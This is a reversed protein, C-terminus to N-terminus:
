RMSNYLLGKILAEDDDDDDDHAGDDIDTRMLGIKLQIGSKVHEISFVHDTIAAM